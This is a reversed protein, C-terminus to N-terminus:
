REAGAVRRFPVRDPPGDAFRLAWRGSASLAIVAACVTGRTSGRKLIRHDGPLPTLGDAALRELRRLTAELPEGPEPAGAGPVRVEGRDHLNTLVHAGPRLSVLDSAPPPRPASSGPHHVVYAERADALLLNFGAYATEALHRAAFGAASRADAQALAREVLLGRSTTGEVPWAERRNTLAVLLGSRTVGLWTGGARRDRPALVRRGAGRWAPPDFAREYAEDRNALLVLPADARVRHHLLLFCM